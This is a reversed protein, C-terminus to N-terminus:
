KEFYNGYSRYGGYREGHGYRRMGQPSVQGLILGVQKANLTQMLRLSESLQVRSTTNWRVTLLLLDAKPAIIRFDPVALIPPTDIIIHDYHGRLEELFRDFKASTLLDAPNVKAEGASMVDAGYGDPRFILDELPRDASFYDAAGLTPLDEFYTGMTRRRFDAEIFLVKRDLGAAVHALGLSNTTKGEGPVSSTVAIIGPPHGPDLMMISTRLSRYAEAQVSGPNAILHDLVRRRRRAPITPIEGVVVAGAFQELDESTRFVTRRGELVLLLAAGAVAGFFASLGAVLPKNPESPIRPVVAEALIRSDAQQIGQQATTENLRLLLQEYLLRIAEAERTLQELRFLDESQRDIQEELEAQSSSLLTLQQRARQVELEARQVLRDFQLDFSAAQEPEATLREALRTLTPDDALEARTARDPAARLAALRAEADAVNIQSSRTRDRLDKLQRELALLAAASILDTSASFDARAAEATELEAQLEAVRSTLQASAQEMADLKAQLQGNVYEQAITDAILASKEADESSVTVQFVYTQSVNRVQLARKLASIVIDREAKASLVEPEEAPRGLIRTTVFAMVWDQARQYAGVEQLERNFEPDEILGLMDVVTGILRRSQLVEIETNVETSDGSLGGVVAELSFLQTQQPQLIVESTARYIPTAAFYAYFGGLLLFVAAFGAIVLKGRWLTGLMAGLELVDDSDDSRFPSVPAVAVPAAAQSKRLSKATAPMERTM